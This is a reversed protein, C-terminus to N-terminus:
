SQKLFDSRRAETVTEAEQKDKDTNRLITIHLDGGFGEGKMNVDKPLISLIMSYFHRKNSPNSEIWKALGKMGGTKEFAEYFAEKIKTAHHKTGKTMGGPNGSVGKIFKGRHEKQTSTKTEVM